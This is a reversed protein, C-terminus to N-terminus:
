ISIYEVIFKLFNCTQITYFLKSAVFARTEKGKKIIKQISCEYPYVASGPTFTRRFSIGKPYKTEEQFIIRLKPEIL